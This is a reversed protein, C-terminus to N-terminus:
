HDNRHRRGAEKRSVPAMPPSVLGWDNEAKAADNGSLVDIIGLGHHPEGFSRLSPWVSRDVPNDYGCDSLYISRSEHFFATQGGPTWM